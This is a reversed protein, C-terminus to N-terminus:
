KSVKFTWTHHASLANSATDTVGSTLTARYESRPLLDLTPDLVATTDNDLTAV